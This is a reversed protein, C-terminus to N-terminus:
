IRCIVSQTISDYQEWILFSHLEKRQHLKLWKSNYVTIHCDQSIEFLTVTKWSCPSAVNNNLIITWVGANKNSKEEM